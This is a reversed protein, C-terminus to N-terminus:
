PTISRGAKDAPDTSGNITREAHARITPHDSDIIDTPNLYQPDMEQMNM